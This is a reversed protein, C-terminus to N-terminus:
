CERDTMETCCAGGKWYTKTGEADLITGPAIRLPCSFPFSINWKCRLMLDTPQRGRMVKNLIAVRAVDEENDPVDNFETPRPQSKFLWSIQRSNKPHPTMSRYFQHPTHIYAGNPHRLSDRQASGTFQRGKSSVLLSFRYSGNPTTFSSTRFAYKGKVHSTYSRWCGRHM